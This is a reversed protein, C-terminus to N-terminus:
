GNHFLRKSFILAILGILVMIVLFYIVASASAIGYYMADFREIIRKMVPNAVDVFSDIITYIVVLFSTPSLVPFTIKWFSEWANAGEIAAAEYYSTPIGLLGSTFLLIQIGSKWTLDFIGSTVGTITEVIKDPLGIQMMAEAIAGTQFIGQADSGTAEVALVDAQIINIIVGSAIIVPLFFVGRMFTRGIFKQNLLISIFMSFVLIIPVTYLLETVTEVISRTFNADKFLIYNYNKLGVSEQLLGISETNISVDNFSYIVSEIFPMIFFYILGILWPLLFIWGTRAQRKEVSLKKKRAM